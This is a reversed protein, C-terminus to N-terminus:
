LGINCLKLINLKGIISSLINNCTDSFYNSLKKISRVKDDADTKGPDICWRLALGFSKIFCSSGPFKTCSSTSSTISINLCHM